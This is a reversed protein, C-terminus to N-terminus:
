SRRLGALGTGAGILLVGSIRNTWRTYRPQRAVAMARGAALGYGLLVVSEIVVSTIALVVVQVVLDGKPDIFQPLLAAFFVIAKPNSLQLLLGDV